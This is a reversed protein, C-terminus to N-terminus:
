SIEAQASKPVVMLASVTAGGAAAVEAIRAQLARIRARTQVARPSVM